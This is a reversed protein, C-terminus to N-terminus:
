IIACVAIVDNNKPRTYSNGQHTRVSNSPRYYPCSAPLFVQTNTHQHHHQNSQFMARWPVAAMETKQQQRLVGCFLKVNRYRNLCTTVSHQGNFSHPLSICSLLLSWESRYKCTYQEAANEITVYLNIGNRSSAQYVHGYSSSDGVNGTKASLCRSQLWSLNLM